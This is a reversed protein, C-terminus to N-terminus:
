PRRSTRGPIMRTCGVHRPMRWRTRCSCRGPSTQNRWTRPRSSSPRPAVTRFSLSCTRRWTQPSTRAWPPSSLARTGTMRRQPPLSPGLTTSRCRTPRTSTRASSLGTRARRMRASLWSTSARTTVLGCRTPLTMGAGCPASSRTCRPTTACTGPVSASGCTVRRTTVASMRAWTSSCTM